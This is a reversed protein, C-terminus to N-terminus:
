RGHYIIGNETDSIFVEKGDSWIGTFGAQVNQTDIFIQQWNEGNYEYVLSPYGIGLIDKSSIKYANRFGTGIPLSLESKWNSLIIEEGNLNSTFVGNGFTYIKNNTFLLGNHEFKAEGLLKTQDIVIFKNGSLKMLYLTDIGIPYSTLYVSNGIGEISQIIYDEGIFYKKWIGNKYESVYDTSSVWFHDKTIVYSDRFGEPMQSKDGTVETWQSGNFHMIFPETSVPNGFLTGGFAWVDNQATGWVGGVSKSGNGFETIPTGETARNWITGDYHWLCNRVDESFGAGWVDRPSSGWISQLYPFGPQSISDISWIYDRKGPPTNEVPIETTDCSIAILWISSFLFLKSLYNNIM